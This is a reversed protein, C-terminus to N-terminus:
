RILLLDADFNGGYQLVEITVVEDVKATLIYSYCNEYRSSIVDKVKLSMEEGFDEKVWNSYEDSIALIKFCIRCIDPTCVFKIEVCDTPISYGNETLYKAFVLSSWPTEM